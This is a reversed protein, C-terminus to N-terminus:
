YDFGKRASVGQRYPHKVEKMETVMDALNLIKENAYRGTLILEVNQPKNRILAVVDDVPVLNYAVAVNIEDLVVVDFNGETVAQRASEIAKQAEKRDEDTIKEPNVFNKQGTIILKIHPLQRLINQENCPSGGKMFYIICVKMGCGLARLVVGLAASTKGKGDGTFINVLGQPLSTIRKQPEKNM